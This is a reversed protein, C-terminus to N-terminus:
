QRILEVSKLAAWGNESGFEITGLPNKGGYVSIRNINDLNESIYVAIFRSRPVHFIESFSARVSQISSRSQSLQVLVTEAPGEIKIRLVDGKVLDAPSNLDIWGSASNRSSSVIGTLEPKLRAENSCISGVIAATEVSLNSRVRSYCIRTDWAKVILEIDRALRETEKATRASAVQENVLLKELSEIREQLNGVETSASKFVSNFIFISGFPIIFGLVVIVINSIFTSRMIWPTDVKADM